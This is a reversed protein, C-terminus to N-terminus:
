DALRWMRLHEIRLRSKTVTTPIDTEIRAPASRAASCFAEASSIADMLSASRPVVCDTLILGFPVSIIVADGIELYPHPMAKGAAVGRRIWEIEEDSIVSPANKTGVLSLVNPVTLLRDAPDSAQPRTQSPRRASPQRQMIAVKVYVM